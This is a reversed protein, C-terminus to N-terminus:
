DLSMFCRSFVHNPSQESASGWTNVIMKILLNGFGKTKATTRAQNPRAAAWHIAARAASKQRFAHLFSIKSVCALVFVDFCLTRCWPSPLVLNRRAYEQRWSSIEYSQRPEDAKGFLKRSLKHPSTSSDARLEFRVAQRIVHQM